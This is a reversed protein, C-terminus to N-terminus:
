ITSLLELHKAKLNEFAERPSNGSAVLGAINTIQPVLASAYWQGSVLQVKLKDM